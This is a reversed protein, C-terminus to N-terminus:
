SGAGVLQGLVHLRSFGFASPTRLASIGTGPRDNPSPSTRNLSRGSSWALVASCSRMLVAIPM